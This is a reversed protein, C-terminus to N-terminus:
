KVGKNLFDQIGDVRDDTLWDQVKDEEPKSSVEGKIHTTIKKNLALLSKFVKKKLEINEKELHEIRKLLEKRTVM